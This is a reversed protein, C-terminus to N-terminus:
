GSRLPRAPDVRGARRAPLLSAVLAVAALVLPVTAFTIADTPAIGVVRLEGGNLRITSGVVDPSGGFRTRRFGYGLDVM